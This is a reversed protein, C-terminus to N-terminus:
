SLYGPLSKFAIVTVFDADATIVKLSVNLVNTLLFCYGCLSNFVKKYNYTDYLFNLEFIVKDRFIYVYEELHMLVPSRSASTQFVICNIVFLSLIVSSLIFDYV